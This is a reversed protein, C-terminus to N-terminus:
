VHAFKVVFEPVRGTRDFHNGAQYVIGEEAGSFERARAVNRYVLSFLYFNVVPMSSFNNDGLLGYEFPPPARPRCYPTNEEGGLDFIEVGFREEEVAGVALM